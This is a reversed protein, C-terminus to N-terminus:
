VDEDSRFKLAWGLARADHWLDPYSKAVVWPDEVILAGEAGLSLLLAAMALRHDGFVRIRAGERARQVGRPILVGDPRARIEVGADAFTSVLDEIRNSEKYRLHAVGRLEVEVPTHLAAVCLIPVLDPADKLDISVQQDSAAKDPYLLALYREVAADPQRCIAAGAREGVRLAVGLRRAARWVAESSADPMASLSQARLFEPGPSFRYAWRAEASDDRASEEIQVGVERLIEFTLELYAESVMGKQPAGSVEMHFSQGSAALLAIASPFQSSQAANVSFRGPFRQWGRINFGGRGRADQDLRTIKAGARILAEVLPKHPRALLRPHATIQTVGPRAAAVALLFRLSTGGEGADIEIPQDPAAGGLKKLARELEFVDSAGSSGSVRLGAPHLYRIIQARNLESKSAQVEIKPTKAGLASRKLNLEPTNRVEISTKRWSEVVSIFAAHWDKAGLERSIIPRGPAGLLISRLAGAERKKDRLMAAKIRPLARPEALEFLGPHYRLLPAIQANLRRAEDRSFGAHERSLEAAALMGWGVAQGHSIGAELELAHGLTHGFNLWSRIGKREFPDEGVIRLKVAISRKLLVSLRPQIAGFGGFGLSEVGGERELTDLAEADGLWLAKILEFLGDQRADLPLHALFQEILITKQAPYFTGIQNKAGKLNLATKGGHASDVMGLLTTPVQWLEVGRWLVSALFGVADGVSGGGIAILKLPRTARKKLVEGALEEIRALTKLGEGAAVYLTQASRAPELSAEILTALAEDIILLAEPPIALENITKLYIISM